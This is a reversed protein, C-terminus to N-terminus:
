TQQIFLNLNYGPNKKVTEFLLLIHLRSNFHRFVQMGTSYIALLLITALPMFM